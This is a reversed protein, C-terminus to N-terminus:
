PKAKPKRAPPTRGLSSLVAKLDSWVDHKADPNRLLYAPHYTPMVRIGEFALWKGRLQSIGTDLGLLAKTAVAGLTVIAKPRLLRLQAVVYPRCASIEEPLPPRNEPPRCKVVNTIFVQERTYGMAEIMRSLLQGAAGVFALAQRDEDAGPAEGVFVIEPSACGQGPVAHTRTAALGCLRCTAIGHALSALTHGEKEMANRGEEIEYALYEALQDLTRRSVM